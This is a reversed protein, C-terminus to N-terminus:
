YSLFDKRWSFIASLIQTKFSFIDQLNEQLAGNMEHLVNCLVSSKSKKTIKYPTEFFVLNLISILMLNLDFIIRLLGDIM